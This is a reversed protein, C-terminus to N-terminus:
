EGKPAFIETTKKNFPQPNIEFLDMFKGLRRAERNLWKRVKSAIKKKLQVGLADFFWIVPFDQDGRQDEVGLYENGIYNPNVVVCLSSTLCGDSIPLLIFRKTFIDISREKTWSM